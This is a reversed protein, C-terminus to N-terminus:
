SPRVRSTKMSLSSERGTGGVFCSNRVPNRQFVTIGLLQGAEDLGSREIYNKAVVDQFKNVVRTGYQAACSARQSIRRGYERDQHPVLRTFHELGGYLFAVQVDSM